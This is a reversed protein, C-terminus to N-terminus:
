LRDFIRRVQNPCTGKREFAQQAVNIRSHSRFRFIEDAEDILLAVTVDGGTAIALSTTSVSTALKTKLHCGSNAGCYTAIIRPESSTTEKM